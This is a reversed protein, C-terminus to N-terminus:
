PINLTIVPYNIIYDTLDNGDCTTGNVLTRGDFCECIYSGITNMCIDECPNTDCENVDLLTVIDLLFRISNTINVKVHGMIQKRTDMRVTAATLVKMALSAHVYAMLVVRLELLM